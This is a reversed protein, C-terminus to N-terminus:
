SIDFYTHLKFLHFLNKISTSTNFISFEKKKEDAEKFTAIVLNIGLSDLEKVNEFNLSVKKVDTNEKLSNKITKTQEDLNSAVLDKEFVLELTQENVIVKM